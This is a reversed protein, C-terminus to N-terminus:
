QSNGFASFARLVPVVKGDRLTLKQRPGRAANRKELDLVGCGWTQRSPSANPM